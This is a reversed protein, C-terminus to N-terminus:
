AMRLMAVLLLTLGIEMWPLSIQPLSRTMVQIPTSTRQGLPLRDSSRVQAQPALPPFHNQM